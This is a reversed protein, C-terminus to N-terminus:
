ICLTTCYTGGVKASVSIQATDKGASTVFEKFFVCLFMFCLWAFAVSWVPADAAPLLEFLM